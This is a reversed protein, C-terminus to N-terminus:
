GVFEDFAYAAPFMGRYTFVNGFVRRQRLFNAFQKRRDRLHLLQLELSAGRRFSRRRLCSLDGLVQAVKMDFPLDAAAPHSDDVFGLLARQAATDGDLNKRLRGKEFRALQLPELALRSRGRFQVMRIDNGDEADSFLGFVMEDHHLEDGADTEILHELM